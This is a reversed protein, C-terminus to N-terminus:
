CQARQLAGPPLFPLLTGLDGGARPDGVAAPRRGPTAALPEGQGMGAELGKGLWALGKEKGACVKATEVAYVEICESM